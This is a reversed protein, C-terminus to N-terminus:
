PVTELLYACRVSVGAYPTTRAKWSQRLRVVEGIEHLTSEPHGLESPSLTPDLAMQRSLKKKMSALTVDMSSVGKKDLARQPENDVSFAGGRAAVEWQGRLTWFYIAMPKHYSVAWLVVTVLCLLLSVESAPTFLRRLMSPMKGEVAHNRFGIRLGDKSIACRGFLKM